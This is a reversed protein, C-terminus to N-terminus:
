GVFAATICNEDHGISNNLNIPNLTVTFTLPTNAALNVNAVCGFPMTTISTGCVNPTMSTVPWALNPSLVDYLLINGNYPQGISTISVTFACPLGPKCDKPGTKVLELQTNSKNEPVIDACSEIPNAATRSLIACNRGSNQGQALSVVVEIVTTSSTQNLASGNINCNVTTCNWPAPATASVVSGGTMLESVAITGSQPGMTNVTIHCKSEYHNIAGVVEKAPDCVKKIDIKSEDPRFDDCSPVHKVGDILRACNKAENAAGSSNFKVTVDISASNGNANFPGAPITCNVPTGAGVVPNPTCVTAVPNASMNTIQGGGNLVESIKIPATAPGDATVTIKCHAELGKAGRKASECTKEVKITPPFKIPSCSKNPHQEDWPRTSHPNVADITACNVQRGDKSAFSMVVDLTSVLGPLANFAAPAINCGIPSATPTAPACVWPAPPTIATITAGAPPTESLNIPTTIPGTSSVRIKCRAEYFPKDTPGPRLEAPECIKEVKVIPKDCDLDKPIIIEVKGNCCQDLGQSSGQGTASGMIDLSIAQGPTAGVVTVRAIGGIVPISANAPVLSIGPTTTSVQLVSPVVGNVGQPHLTITYTGPRPGCSVEPTAKLCNPTTNDTVGLCKKVEAVPINIATADGQAATAPDDSKFTQGSLSQATLAAQNTINFDGGSLSSPNLVSSFSITYSGVIPTGATGTPTPFKISWGTSNLTPTAVVSPTSNFTVSTAPNLGAPWTDSVTVTDPSGGDSLTYVRITYTLKDCVRKVSKAFGQIVTTKRDCPDANITVVADDFNVNDDMTVVYSFTAGRAVTASGSVTVWPTSKSPGATLSATQSAIISGGTGAGSLISVKGIAASGSPYGINIARTSFKGSFSVSASTGAPSGPCAPVTFTQYLDNSGNAIDLYHQPVGSGPASGDSEPGNSFYDYGGPGDVQVVNSSSGGGLIWPTMPWGINNGMTTPASNEFGPNAILNAARSNVTALFLVALALVIKLVNMQSVNGFKSFQISM